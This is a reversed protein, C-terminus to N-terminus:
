DRKIAASQDRLAILNACDASPRGIKSASIYRIIADVEWLKDTIINRQGHLHAGIPIM